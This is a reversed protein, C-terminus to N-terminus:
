GSPRETASAREFHSFYRGTIREVPLIIFVDTTGFQYDVVAGDGIHAGLRLYGKVLPPLGALVRRPSFESEALRAMEVYRSALAQVRLEPPARHFHHLYSLEPALAEPETGPLSACGFMFGIRHRALYGAIGRWLLLITANTRYDAAVCSRGLELGRCNANLHALLPTLDYEDASYFGWNAEAVQQRLLRYTGVVREGAPREMDLALLFDCIDDYRDFDRREAAMEPTPKAAMERYFVQFRLRQSELVESRERALRVELAGARALVDGDATLGFGRPTATPDAFATM